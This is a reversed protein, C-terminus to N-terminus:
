LKNLDQATVRGKSKSKGMAIALSFVINASCFDLKFTDKSVDTLNKHTCIINVMHHKFSHVAHCFGKSDDSTKNQTQEAETRLETM